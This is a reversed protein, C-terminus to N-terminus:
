PQKLLHQLNASLLRHLKPNIEYVRRLCVQLGEDGMKPYRKTYHAAMERAQTHVTKPQRM